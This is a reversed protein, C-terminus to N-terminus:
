GLRRAIRNGPHREIRGELELELLADQIAAAEVQCQRALDDIAVPEAGLGELLRAVLASRPLTAERRDAAPAAAPLPRVPASAAAPPKMNACLPAIVALVDDASEVLHAGERLLRNTGRHRPDLPSGPVAMVERGAELALRATLLSGSHPAAEVVVVGVALGAIIRNRRPFHEARPAAALPRESVVCGEIAIRDLLATNEEPYARDVGSALVAVTSGPGDLAGLHAATDIGRALGSVVVLGAASLTRAMQAALLCGHHSANRAGVIALAPGALLEARGRAVLVVPADDLARLREPYAEDCLLLLQAGLAAMADLERAVEDESVLAVGPWRGTAILGPLAAVAEVASGFRAILRRHRKPGIGPSRALRLWAFREEPALARVEPFVCGDM